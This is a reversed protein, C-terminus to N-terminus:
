LSTRAPTSQFSQLSRAAGSLSNQLSPRSILALVRVWAFPCLRKARVEADALHNVVAASGAVLAIGALGFVLIDLPVMGPVALFMGAGACLLMLLVVRPKTLELYDRWSPAVVAVDSM